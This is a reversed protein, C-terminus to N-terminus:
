SLSDLLGLAAAAGVANFLMHAIITPGLRDVTVAIAAFVLGVMSISAFLVLTGDLSSGTFHPLTFLLTSGVIAAGKGSRKEFARLILGRFFLEEAVPAGVVVAFLLFYLWPTGEADRLFQTNDAQAQDSLNVLQAVVGSAVAALGLAIVATGLGIALDVPAFRLRWDSAPGLGKWKSVVFPWSAQALQQALLSTVLLALPTEAQDGSTQGALASFVVGLLVGVIVFAFIFPVGLWIDGLGWRPRARGDGSWSAPAVGGHDPPDTWVPFGTPPPMTPPPMTSWHGDPGVPGAAPAPATEVLPPEPEPGPSSSPVVSPPEFPSPSEAPQPPTM